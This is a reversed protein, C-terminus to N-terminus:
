YNSLLPDKTSWLQQFKRIIRGWAEKVKCRLGKLALGAFHDFVSLCNTPLNSVVQKLSNSWKRLNASLSNIKFFTDNRMYRPTFHLHPFYWRWSTEWQFLDMTRELTYDLSHQYSSHLEGYNFFAIWIIDDEGNKM